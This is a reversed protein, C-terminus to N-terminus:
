YGRPLSEISDRSAYHEELRGAIRDGKYTVASPTKKAGLCRALAEIESVRFRSNELGRFQIHELDSPGLGYSNAAVHAMIDFPSTKEKLWTLGTLYELLLLIDGGIKVTGRVAGWFGGIEEYRKKLFAGAIVDLTPADSAAIVAGIDINDGFDPGIASVTKRMDTVCFREKCNRDKKSLTKKDAFAFYIEAIKRHFDMDGARQKWLYRWFYSHNSKQLERGTETKKSRTLDAALKRLNKKHSEADQDKKRRFIPNEDDSHVYSIRQGGDMLGVYNKVAGSLGENGLISHRGPPKPLNIIDTVEEAVVKPILFRKEDKFYNVQDPDPYCVKVKEEKDFPLVEVGMSKAFEMVEASIKEFGDVNVKDALERAKKFKPNNKENAVAHHLAALGAGKFVGTNKGFNEETSGFGMNRVEIGSEDGIIVKQPPNEQELCLKTLAYISEPSTVTPYGGFGWNVGIKILITHKRGDNLFNFGEIENITKKFVEQIESLNADPHIKAISASSTNGKAKEHMKKIDSPDATGSSIFQRLQGLCALGLLHLNTVMCWIYALIRQFIPKKKPELSLSGAKRM